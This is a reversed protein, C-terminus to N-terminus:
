EKNLYSKIQGWLEKDFTLLWPGSPLFLVINGDPSIYSAHVSEMVFYFDIKVESLEPEKLGLNRANEIAEMDGDQLIAKCKM